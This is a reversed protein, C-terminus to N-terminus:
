IKKDLEKKALYSIYCGVAFAMVIEFILFAYDFGQDKKDAKSKIEKVKNLSKGIYLWLAIYLSVVSTGKLYDRIKVKTIGLFYSM